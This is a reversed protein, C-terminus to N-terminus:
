KLKDLHEFKELVGEAVRGLDGPDSAMPDQDVNLMKRPDGGSKHPKIPGPKACAKPAQLEGLQEYEDLVWEAVRGLDGPDTELPAGDVNLLQHPDPHRDHPPPAAMAAVAIRLRRGAAVAQKRPLGAACRTTQLCCQM